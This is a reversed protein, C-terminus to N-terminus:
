NHENFYKLVDTLPKNQLDVFCAAAKEYNPHYVTANFKDPEPKNEEFVKLGILYKGDEVEQLVVITKTEM